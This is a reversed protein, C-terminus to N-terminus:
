LSSRRRIKGDVYVHTAHTKADNKAAVIHIQQILKNGDVGVAQCLGIVTVFVDAAEEAISDDVTAVVKRRLAVM